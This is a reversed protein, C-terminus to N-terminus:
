GLLSMTAMCSLLVSNLSNTWYLWSVLLLLLHQPDPSSRCGWIAVNYINKMNLLIIVLGVFFCFTQDMCLFHLRLVFQFLSVEIKLINLSVPFWTYFFNHSHHRMLYLSLIFLSFNYFLVLNFKSTSFYLFLFEKKFFDTSPKLLLYKLSLLFIWHGQLCTLQFVILFMLLAEFIQPTGSLMCM